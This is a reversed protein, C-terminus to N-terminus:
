TADEGGEVTRAGRRAVCLYYGLGGGGRLAATASPAAAAIPADAAASPADAVVIPADAAAPERAGLAGRGALEWVLRALADSHDEWTEVAFGREALLRRAADPDARRFLDNVLLRGGPRLVRAWEDVAAGPEDTVSLVCEALVADVSADPLPLREASGERLDLAHCRDRGQRLLASSVDVGIVRLGFREALHEATVGGGCGVDLVAAGRPLGALEVTRETLSLGGPHRCGGLLEPLAEGDRFRSAALGCRVGATTAEPGSV